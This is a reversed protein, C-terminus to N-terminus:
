KSLPQMLDISQELESSMKVNNIRLVWLYSINKYKSANDKTKKM